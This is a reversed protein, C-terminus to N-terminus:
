EIAIYREKREFPSFKRGTGAIFKGFFEVFQLRASHIFGILAGIVLAFIHGVLLIIAMLIFGVYPVLDNVLLAILNVAFALAGAALGLAFLRSYSLLDSLYGVGHYLGSLGHSLKKFIGHEHRGETVVISALSTYLWWTYWKAEGGVYGAKFLVFAILASFLSLWPVQKFLGDVLEGQKAKAVIKLFVGFMIQIIGLALTFLLVVIPSTIPNFVRIAELTHSVHEAEVGFYAGFLFGGIISSAGCLALLSILMRMGQPLRLFFLAALSLVLIVTGHGVDPLTLGFFVFFFIALYVTPDLDHGSPLGYLRTITEFPRLFPHNKIEVPPVEGEELALEEVAFENTINGIKEEIDKLANKPCWGDFARVSDTRSAAQILEHKTKNWFMYDSMVKLKPLFPLFQKIETEYQTRRETLEQEAMTLRDLEEQPTGSARPLEVSELDYERSLRAVADASEKLSTISLHGNNDALKEYAIGDEETKALFAAIKEEKGSLLFTKTHATQFGDHLSADIFAWTSLLIREERLANQKALTDNLSEELDQLSDIIDNYHFDKTISAFEQESVITKDGEKLARVFGKKPEFQSLFKVAFDLRGSAHHIVSAEKEDEKSKSINTLPTFEVAGMKQIAALVDSAANRHVYLRIKQMAVTAM